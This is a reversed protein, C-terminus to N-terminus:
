RNALIYIVDGDQVIYNKGELRVLGQAKAEKMSGARRLADYSIVEARVFGAEFDSHITGAAKVVSTGARLPWARCEENNMTYFIIQGLGYYIRRLVEERGLSQLGLEQAFAERESAPLQSVEWELQVPVVLPTPQLEALPRPLREASWSEGTNLLVMRPKLAFLQFARVLKEEDNSLTIHAAPDRELSQKLRQLLAREREDAEREAASRGKRALAELRQIRNSLIELDALALESILRRYEAVPDERFASLVLLLGVTERLIALRRPNDRADETMLGPVDVFELTAPTAKKSHALQALWELREDPLRAIGLQGRLASPEPTVGTLWRFLTTKGSGMYGALGVRM